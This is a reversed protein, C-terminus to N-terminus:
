QVAMRDCALVRSVYGGLSPPTKVTGDEPSSAAIVSDEGIGM